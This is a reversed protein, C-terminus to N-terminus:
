KRWFHHLPFLNSCSSSLAEAMWCDRQHHGLKIIDDLYVWMLIGAKAATLVPLMVMLIASNELWTPQSVFMPRQLSMITSGTKHHFINVRECRYSLKLPECMLLVTKSGKKLPHEFLTFLFFNSFLKTSEEDSVRRLWNNSTCSLMDTCEGWDWM